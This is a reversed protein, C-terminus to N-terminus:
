SRPESGPATRRGNASATPRHRGRLTVPPELISDVDPETEVAPGASPRLVVWFMVTIVLSAAGAVGLAVRPSALAAISGGIVIGLGPAAEVISEQLGMVIAMWRPETREQVFTRAAVLQVGNGSGAIAAAVVAMVITQSAAMLGLGIALAGASVALQARITTHLWRVYALSAVVAGAGWASLVAGYGEAGAHLTQQVFVVEVPVALTFVVIAAAQTSLLASILRDRRVFAIAARLRGASPAKEPAAGPLGSTTALVLAVLAFLGANVLMAATTGGSVVVLGGIAPGVMYLISFQANILANGERLLGAPTLVAVTAARTISRAVVGITGDVIVVTLVSALEFHQTAYALGLFLAAEAGYLLPLVAHAARQDVKAVFPPAILAPFFQASLFFASSGIASGTRRYVLLSLALIGVAWTLDNMTYALLLRRYAPIRLARKV